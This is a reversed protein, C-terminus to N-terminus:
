KFSELPFFIYKHEKYFLMYKYNKIIGAFQKKIEGLLSRLEQISRIQVDIEIDDGGLVESDYIINPNQKIFAKFQKEKENTLSHLNFHVKFYQYGLKEIDFMTRYGLIIKKKELEKIRATVTKTTIKLKKAMDLISIRSNPTLIKLIEVDKKDIDIKESESIFVYEETNYKKELLYARPYYSVKIFITLWRKEIFNIYRKLIDRWLNNMERTSKALIWMGLDFEGDISVIWTVVDQNKLFNIIENEKEPTINQLKIYLRFSIFGLKSVDIITHFQKIVGAEQLKNIRYIVSDKSLGIKKAIQHYSQRSDIDLEYLLKRDKLDLKLM